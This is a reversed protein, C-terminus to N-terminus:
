DKALGGILNSAVYDVDTNVYNVVDCNHQSQFLLVRSIIVALLMFQIRSYGSKPNQQLIYVHANNRKIM